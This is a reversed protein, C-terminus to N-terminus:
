RTMVEFMAWVCRISRTSRLRARLVHCYVCPLWGAPWDSVEVVPLFNNKCAAIGLHAFDVFYETNGLGCACRAM